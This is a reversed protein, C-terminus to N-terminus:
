ESRELAVNLMVLGSSFCSVVNGDKKTFSLDKVREEVWSEEGGGGVGCGVRGEDERERKGGGGREGWECVAGDGGERGSGGGWM